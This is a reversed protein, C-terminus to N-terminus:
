FIKLFDSDLFELFNWFFILFKKKLYIKLNKKSLKIELYKSFVRMKLKKRCNKRMILFFLVKWCIRAMSCFVNASGLLADFIRCIQLIVFWFFHIYWRSVNVDLRSNIFILMHLCHIRLGNLGDFRWLEHFQSIGIIIRRVSDFLHNCCSACFRHVSFDPVTPNPFPFSKWFYSWLSFFFLKEGKKTKHNVDGEHLSGAFFFTKKKLKFKKKFVKGEFIM